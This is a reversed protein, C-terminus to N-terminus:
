EKVIRGVIEYVLAQEFGRSLGFRILKSKLEYHSQAKVQKQKSRILEELTTAEKDPSLEKIAETIIESNIGKSKLMAIIKVRGWRNLRSKERTYMKAFRSDNIYGEAILREVIRNSEEENLGYEHLKRAIDFSCKEQGACIRETRQLAQEFGIKGKRNQKM